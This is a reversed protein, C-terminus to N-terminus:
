NSGGKYQLLHAEIWAYGEDDRPWRALLSEIWGIAADDSTLFWSPLSSITDLLDLHKNNHIADMQTPLKDRVINARTRLLTKREDISKESPSDGIYFLSHTPFGSWVPVTRAVDWDIIAVIRLPDNYDMLINPSDLDMHLLAFQSCPPVRTSLRQLLKYHAIFHQINIPADQDPDSNVRELFKEPAQTLLRIERGAFAHITERPTEWPGREPDETGWAHWLPIYPGVKFEGNEDM